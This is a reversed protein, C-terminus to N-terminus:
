SAFIIIAQDNKNTFSYNVNLNCNDYNKKNRLLNNSKILKIKESKLKLNDIM